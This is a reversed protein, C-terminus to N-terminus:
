KRSVKRKRSSRKQSQPMVGIRPDRRRALAVLRVASREFSDAAEPLYLWKPLIPHPTLEPFEAMLSAHHGRETGLLLGRWPESKAAFYMVLRGDLYVARGGFMPRLVFGPDNELPEWLWEHPHVKRVRGPSKEFNARM